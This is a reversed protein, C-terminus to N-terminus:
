AKKKRRFGIGALGLGMLALTTPEPVSTAIQVNDVGSFSLGAQTDSFRFYRIDLGSLTVPGGPLDNNTDFDTFTDLVSFSSDLVEGYFYGSLFGAYLFSVSSVDFDFALQAFDSNSNQDHRLGNGSFGGSGGTSLYMSGGSASATITGASTSLPSSTINSGTAATDFDLTIVTANSVGSIGFCAVIAILANNINRM